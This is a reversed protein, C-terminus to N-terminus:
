QLADARDNRDGEAVPRVSEPVALHLDPPDLAGHRDEQRGVLRESARVRSAVIPGPALGSLLLVGALAGFVVSERRRLSLRAGSYSRGCFSSFYMRLVAIGTLASAAVVAFGLVPFTAVAGQVLMEEGVFGLTGPFGTCALGFVLFSTALRPMQEYGGHHAELDLRGRRAELVLVCRALGAFALASSLWLVLSGALAVSSTCDLGALVLASQSVFLYGCARRPDRQVAALAAGYVATALSLVAVTRLMEPGARPVVVVAAVYSGMQPASFLIAPGLRGRDFVEPLWAHFPFIGKRILVAAVVLWLGVSEFRSATLALGLALITWASVLYVAAVRRSRRAEPESLAAFFLLDTFVWLSLLLLPRDTLFALTTALTALATRPLGARDLRSRPTVAVTLLWLAAPLPVLATSISDLRLLARLWSLELAHAEPLWVLPGTVALMVSSAAVAVGRLRETDIRTRAAAVVSLPAAVLCSLWLASPTM